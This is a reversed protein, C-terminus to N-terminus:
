SLAESVKFPQPAAYSKNGALTEPQLIYIPVANGASIGVEEGAHTEM